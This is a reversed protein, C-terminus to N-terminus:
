SKADILLEKKNKYFYDIGSILSIFAAIYTLYIAFSVGPLLLVFTLSIMQAMTKAKGLSSAAIVVNRESMIIRIVDVIIDRSVMIVTVLWPITGIGTLIIFLTNVLLKDAIPDLFKGFTTILNRKRAIKGDLHDSISGIVFLFLVSVGIIDYNIGFVSFNYYNLNPFIDKFLYLGIIILVVIMRFVTIKNPLNMKKKM